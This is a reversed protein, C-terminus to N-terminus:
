WPHPPVADARRSDEGGDLEALKRRWRYFLAGSVDNRRCFEAASLGSVRQQKIVAWGISSESGVGVERWALGGCPFGLFDEWFLGRALVGSIRREGIPQRQHELLQSPQSCRLYWACIDSSTPQQTM